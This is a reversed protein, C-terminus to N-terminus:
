CHMFPKPKQNWNDYVLCESPQIEIFDDDEGDDKTVPIDDCFWSSSSQPSKCASTESVHSDSENRDMGPSSQGGAAATSTTKTHSRISPRGKLMSSLSNMSSMIISSSSPSSSINSTITAATTVPASIVILEDLLSPSAKSLPRLDNEKKLTRKTVSSSERNLQEQQPFWESIKHNTKAVKIFGSARKRCKREAPLITDVPDKTGDHFQTLKTEKLRQSKNGQQTFETQQQKHKSKGDTSPVVAGSHEGDSSAFIKKWGHDGIKTRPNTSSSSATSALLSTRPKKKNEVFDNDDNAHQDMCPPLLPRKRNNEHTNIKKAAWAKTQPPPTLCSLIRSATQSIGRREISDLKQQQKPVVRSGVTYSVEKKDKICHKQNDAPRHQGTCLHEEPTNRAESKNGSLKMTGFSSKNQRDVQKMTTTTVSSPQTLDESNDIKNNVHKKRPTTRTSTSASLKTTTMSKNTQIRINKMPDTDRAKPEVTCITTSPEM